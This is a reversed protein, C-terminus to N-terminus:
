RRMKRRIANSNYSFTNMIKNGNTNGINCFYNSKPIKLYKFKDNTNKSINLFRVNKGCVQLNEM